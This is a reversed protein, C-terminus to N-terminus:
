PVRWWMPVYWPLRGAAEGAPIGRRAAVPGRRLSSPLKRGAGQRGSPLSGSKTEGTQPPPPPSVPRGLFARWPRAGKSSNCSTCIPRLNSLCHPGGLALPIVHDAAEFPGQCLWCRNGWFAMRAAFQEITFPITLVGRKVAKRRKVRALALARGRPDDYERRFKARGKARRAELDARYRAAELARVHLPDEARRHRTVAAAALRCPECPEEQAARHRKWGRWTGTASRGIADGQTIPPQCAPLSPIEFLTPYDPLPRRTM